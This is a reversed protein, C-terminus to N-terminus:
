DLGLIDRNFLETNGSSLLPKGLYKYKSYKKLIENEASRADFGVEYSWTSVIVIRPLEYKKFREEVSSNTVGIKYALGNEIKLYYLIAPKNGDFGYEGCSPCGNGSKHSSPLQEFEGHIPCQIKVKVEVGKYEVLKYGYKNGHVEQFQSIVKETNLNQGACTPCGSGKKHVYPMQRFEGHKRCIISVLKDIRVFNVKDYAYLDGHATRFDDILRERTYHSGRSKESFACLPCNAGRMHGDPIQFFSGHIKCVIEVPTSNNIYKVKSYDYKNKHVSNFREIVEDHGLRNGEANGDIGCHPCGHGAKHFEPKQHFEGHKKCIILVPTKSNVYEVKSYDYRGNHANNFIKIVNEQTHRQKSKMKEFGCKICGIGAKHDAPLQEFVGHKKCIISVKTSNNVYKVSSYDYVDGHTNM